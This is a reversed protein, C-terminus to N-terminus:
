SDNQIFYGIDVYVQNGVKVNSNASLTHVQIYSLIQLYM